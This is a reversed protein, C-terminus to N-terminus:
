YILLNIKKYLFCIGGSFQSGLMSYTVIFSISPSFVKCTSLSFTLSASNFAPNLSFVSFATILNSACVSSNLVKHSNHTSSFHHHSPLSSRVSVFNPALFVVSVSYSLANNPIALFNSACIFNDIFLILLSQITIRFWNASINSEPSKKSEKVGALKPQSHVIHPGSAVARCSCSLSAVLALPIALDFASKSKNVLM